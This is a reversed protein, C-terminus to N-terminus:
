FPQQVLHHIFINWVCINIKVDFTRIGMFKVECVISSKFNKTGKCEILPTRQMNCFVSVLLLGSTEM